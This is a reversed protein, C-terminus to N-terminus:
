QAVEKFSIGICLGMTGGVSSIMAVLDFILYEEMVRVRPPDMFKMFFTTKEITEKSKFSTTERVQYQLVTCPKKIIDERVTEKVRKFCKMETESICVSFRHVGGTTCFLYSSPVCVKPCTQNMKEAIKAELLNKYPQDRCKEKDQLFIFKEPKINIIKSEGVKALIDTADGDYYHDNILNGGCYSNNEATLYIGVKDVRTHNEFSYRLSFQTPLDSSLISPRLLTLAKKIELNWVTNKVTNNGIELETLTENNEGAVFYEIRYDRGYELISDEMFETQIWTSITPLETVPELYEAFNTRKLLYKEPVEGQKIFYIGLSLFSIYIVVDFLFVEMRKSCIKLAVAGTIRNYRINFLPDAIPCVNIKAVVRQHQFLPM